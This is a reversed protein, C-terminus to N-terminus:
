QISPATTLDFLECRPSTEIWEQMPLELLESLDPEAALLPREDIRGWTPISDVALGSSYWIAQEFGAAQWAARTRQWLGEDASFPVSGGGM